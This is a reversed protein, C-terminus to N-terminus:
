LLGDESQSDLVNRSTERPTAPVQYARKEYRESAELSRWADFEVRLSELHWQLSTEQEVAAVLNDVIAQYEPHAYAWSEQKATSTLGLDREARAMLRAKQIKRAEEFKVRQGKAQAYRTATERFAHLLREIHEDSLRM